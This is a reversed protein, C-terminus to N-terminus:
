VGQKLRRLLHRAVNLAVQEHDLKSKGRRIAQRYGSMIQTVKDRRPRVLVDAKGKSSVEEVSM